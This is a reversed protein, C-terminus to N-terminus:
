GCLHKMLLWLHSRRPYLNSKKLAFSIELRGSKGYFGLLSSVFPLAWNTIIIVRSCSTSTWFFQTRQGVLLLCRFVLYSGCKKLLLVTFCHIVFRRPAKIACLVTQILLFVALVFVLSWLWLVLCSVGCSIDLNRLHKPRGFNGGYSLKLLLCLVQPAQICMLLLRRLIIAVRLTMRAMRQSVGDFLM